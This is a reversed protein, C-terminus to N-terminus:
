DCGSICGITRKRQGYYQWVYIAEAANELTNFGRFTKQCMYTAPPEPYYYVRVTRLGVSFQVIWYRSTLSGSGEEYYRRSIIEPVIIANAEDRERKRRQEEAILRQKREEEWILQKAYREELLKKEQVLVESYRTPEIEKGNRDIFGYKDNKRFSYYEFNNRADILEHYEASSIEGNKNIIGWSDYRKYTAFDIPADKSLRRLNMESIGGVLLQGTKSYLEVEEKSQAIIFVESLEKVPFNINSHYKCPVIQKGTFDFVGTAWTNPITLIILNGKDTITRHLTAAIFDKNAGIFWFREYQYDLILKGTSNDRLGFRGSHHQEARFRTSTGVLAANEAKSKKAEDESKKRAIAADEQTKARNIQVQSPVYGALPKFRIAKVFTTVDGFKMEEYIDYGELTIDKRGNFYSRMDKLKVNKCTIHYIGGSLTAEEIMKDFERKSQAFVGVSCFILFLLSYLKFYRNM